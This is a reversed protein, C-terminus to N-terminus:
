PSEEHGEAQTPADEKPVLVQIQDGEIRVAYSDIKIRRNDCWTGDRISFRWAHWPCAVIGDDLAGDALSAGMHPCLDTIAFYEGGDNFVAVLKGNVEFAQGRGENITGVRAVTTYESM